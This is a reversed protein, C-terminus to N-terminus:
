FSVRAAFQVVRSVSATRLVKGFSGGPVAIANGDEITMTQFSPHNLFNLMESRFDLVVRETLSFKKQIAL